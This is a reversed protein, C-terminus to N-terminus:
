KKEKQGLVPQESELSVQEGFQQPEAALQSRLKVLMREILAPEQSRYSNEVLEGFKRMVSVVLSINAM